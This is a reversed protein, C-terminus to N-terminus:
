EGLLSRAEQLDATECGETFWGYVEALLRQGDPQKGHQQGLRYLSMVTRLELSKAQQRRAIVLATHLCEETKYATQGAVAAEQRLLEGKLRYLEAEWLREGSEAVFALAEDLINLGEVVQGAQGYTM